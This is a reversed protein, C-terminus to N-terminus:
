INKKEAPSLSATSASSASKDLPPSPPDLFGTNLPPHNYVFLGAAKKWAMRDEIEDYYPLMGEFLESELIPSSSADM